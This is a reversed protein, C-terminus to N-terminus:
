EKEDAEPNASEESGPDATPPATAAAERAAEEALKNRRGTIWWFGTMLGAMGIVMPPVKSLAAWTLEPLPQTDLDPKAALFDLPIDSIYLVSTGGVETEGYIHNVYRDPDADIRRQAEKRLEERTGFITAGHPCAEVCGPLKGEEIRSHCMTCKRVFPVAKEWDYRPIEYPCSAMCYRCSMCRSSDYIVPGEETKQLAGVLCASV